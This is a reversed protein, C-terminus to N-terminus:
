QAGSPSDGGFYTSVPRDGDTRARARAAILDALHEDAMDLLSAASQDQEGGESASQRATKLLQGILLAEFKGAAEQIAVPSDRTKMLNGASVTNALAAINM